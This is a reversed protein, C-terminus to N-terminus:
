RLYRFNIIHRANGECMVRGPLSSREAKLCRALTELRYLFETREELPTAKYRDLSTELYEKIAQRERRIEEPTKAYRETWETGKRAILKHLSDLHSDYDELRVFPVFSPLNTKLLQIIPDELPVELVGLLRSLRETQLSSHLLDCDNYDKGLNRMRSLWLIFSSFKQDGFLDPNKEYLSKSSEGRRKLHNAIRRGADELFAPATDVSTM